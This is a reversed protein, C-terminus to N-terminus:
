RVLGSPSSADLRVNREPRRREGKSPRFGLVFSGEEMFTPHPPRLCAETAAASSPETLFNPLHFAAAVPHSPVLLVECGGTRSPRSHSHRGAGPCGLGAEQCIHGLPSLALCERWVRGRPRRGEGMGVERRVSGEKRATASPQLDTESDTGDKGGGGARWWREEDWVVM